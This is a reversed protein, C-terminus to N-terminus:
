TASTPSSSGVEVNCSYGLEPSARLKSINAMGRHRGDEWKDKKEEVKSTHYEKIAQAQEPTLSPRELRPADIGRPNWGKLGFADHTMEIHGKTTSFSRGSFDTTGSRPSDQLSEMQPSKGKKESDERLNATSNSREAHRKRKLANSLQRLAPTSAAIIGM